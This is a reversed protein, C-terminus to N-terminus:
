DKHPWDNNFPEMKYVKKFHYDLVVKGVYQLPKVTEQFRLMGGVLIGLNNLVLPVDSLKLELDSM